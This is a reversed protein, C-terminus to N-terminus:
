GDELDELLPTNRYTWRAVMTSVGVVWMSPVQVASGMMAIQVALVEPSESDALVM